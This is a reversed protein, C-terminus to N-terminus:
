LVLLCADHAAPAVRQRRVPGGCADLVALTGLSLSPSIVWGGASTVNFSGLPLAATRLRRGDLRHTCLTGDDGSTVYAVGVGAPRDLFAVHQPAQGAAVTRRPSSGGHAPYLAIEGRDGSTV